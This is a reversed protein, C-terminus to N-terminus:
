LVGARREFDGFAEGAEREASFRALLGDPDGALVPAQPATFAPM